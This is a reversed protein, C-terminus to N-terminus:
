EKMDKQQAESEPNAPDQYQNPKAVDHLFETM